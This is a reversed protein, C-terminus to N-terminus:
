IMKVMEHGSVDKTVSFYHEGRLPSLDYSMVVFDDESYANANEIDSFKKKYISGMNLPIHFLSRTIAKVFLKNKFHLTKKDWEDPKFRSCCNSPNDNMDYPPLTNDPLVNNPLVTTKM